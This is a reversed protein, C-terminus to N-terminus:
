GSRVGNLGEIAAMACQILKELAKGQDILFGIARLGVHAAM